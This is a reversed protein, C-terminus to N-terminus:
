QQAYYALDNMLPLKDAGSWMQQMKGDNGTAIIAPYEMVGYLQATKSGEIGDVNFTELKEGPHFRQFDRIYEEVVRAHESQPRYLVIIRM